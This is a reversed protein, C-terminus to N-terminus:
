QNATGNLIEKTEGCELMGGKYKPHHMGLYPNRIGETKSLWIGTEEDNFAMPCQQLYITANDYRITRMLDYMNQSLTHFAMRKKDLPATGAIVEINKQVPEKYTIATQHILSDKQIESFAISDVSAQLATAHTTVATSDWNVFAESLAYYHNLATGISNNFAASYQSVAVPQQQSTEVDPKKRTEFFYWAAVGVLALVVLLFVKKM